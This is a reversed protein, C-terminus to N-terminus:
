KELIVKMGMSPLIITLKNSSTQHIIGEFNKFIGDSIIIKDGIRYDEVTIQQYVGKSYNQLTEIEKDSIVAPIGNWYLIRIVGPVNIVSKIYKSDTNVFLYSPILPIEVKKKRDSWQRITMTTPCFTNFGRKNLELALKKESRPKTYVAYWPM